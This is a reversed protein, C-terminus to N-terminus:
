LHLSPVGRKSSSSSFAPHEEITCDLEEALHDGVFNHTAGSDLRILVSKGGIQGIVRMADPRNPDTMMHCAGDPPEEEEKQPEEKAETEYAEEIKPPQDDEEDDTEQELVTYVRIHKCRHTPDWKEKCWFCQKNKILLEREERTLAPPARAKYAPKPEEKRPPAPLLKQQHVERPRIAGVNRWPGYLAQKKHQRDEISRAKGFCKRLETNKEARIDIQIEEKLGGIFAAILSKPTWEVMSALSEFRAQYEQVTSTQKLNRLEIDYDVYSSEGFETVGDVAKIQTKGHHAESDLVTSVTRLGYPDRNELEPLSYHQGGNNGNPGGPPPRSPGAYSQIPNPDSSPPGGLIGKGKDHNSPPGPPSPRSAEFSSTMSKIMEKLVEIENLKDLKKNYEDMEQRVQLMESEIHVMRGITQTQFEMPPQEEHGSSYEVVVPEEAAAPQNGRRTVM